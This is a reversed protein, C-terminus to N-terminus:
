PCRLFKKLSEKWINDQSAELSQERSEKLCRTSIEGEFRGPNKFPNRGLNWRPIGGPNKRGTIKEAIYGLIGAPNLVYLKETIGGSIEGPIRQPIRGTIGKLVRTKKKRLFFFLDTPHRLGLTIAAFQQRLITM